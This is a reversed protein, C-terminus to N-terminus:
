KSFVMTIYIASNKIDFKPNPQEVNITPPLVKHHLGLVAKVMGVAGAAAKTHGVQSKVSGLAIHQKKPNNDGFVMQMSTFETPDGAETGTGHAEILGVTSAPYGADEYARNMALAQGAPRPAYVSKFRGDSSTGVGKIM